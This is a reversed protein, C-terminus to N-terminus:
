VRSRCCRRAKEVTITGYKGITTRCNTFSVPSKYEFSFFKGTKRVRVSFGKIESDYPVEEPMKSVSPETLKKIAM